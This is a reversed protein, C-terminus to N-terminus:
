NIIKIEVNHLINNVIKNNKIIRTCFVEKKKLKFSSTQMKVGSGLLISERM